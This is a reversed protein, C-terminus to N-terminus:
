LAVENVRGEVLATTQEEGCEGVRPIELALTWGWDIEGLQHYRKWSHIDVYRDWGGVVMYRVRCSDKEHREQVLFFGLNSELFIDLFFLLFCPRM